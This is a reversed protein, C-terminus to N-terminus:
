IRTFRKQYNRDKSANKEGEKKLLYESKRESLWWESSGSRKRLKNINSNTANKGEKKNTLLCM